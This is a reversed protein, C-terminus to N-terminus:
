PQAPSQLPLLLLTLIPSSTGWLGQQWWLNLAAPWATALPGPFSSDKVEMPRSTRPTGLIINTQLTDM